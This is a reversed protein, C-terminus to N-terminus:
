KKLFQEDSPALYRQGTVGPLAHSMLIELTDFDIGWEYQAFTRWSNCLNSFPMRKDEATRDWADGLTSKNMPFMGGYLWKEDALEFLRSTFPDPAIATRISQLTELNGDPYPVFGSDDMRRLIPVLAFKLGHSQTTKIEGSRAALSKGTRTGGFAALIYATEMPSGKLMEWAAVAQAFTYLERSKERTTSTPLEYPMRFKNADTIVYNVCLDGM